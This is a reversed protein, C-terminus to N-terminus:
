CAKDGCVRTSHQSASSQLGTERSIESLCSSGEAQLVSCSISPPPPPPPPQGGGDGKDYCTASWPHKPRLLIETGLHPLVCSLVNGLWPWCGMSIAQIEQQEGMVWECSPYHSIFPFSAKLAKCQPQPHLSPTLVQGCMALDRCGTEGWAWM